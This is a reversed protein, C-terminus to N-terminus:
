LMTVASFVCITGVSTCGNFGSMLDINQASTDHIISINIFLLFFIYIFNVIVSRVNRPNLNFISIGVIM